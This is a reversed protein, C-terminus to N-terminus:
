LGLRLTHGLVEALKMMLCRCNLNLSDLPKGPNLSVLWRGRIWYLWPRHNRAVAMLGDLITKSKTNTFPRMYQRRVVMATTTESVRLFGHWIM